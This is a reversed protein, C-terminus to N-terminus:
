IAKPNQDLSPPGAVQAWILVEVLHFLTNPRTMNTDSSVRFIYGFKASWSFWPGVNLLSIRDHMRMWKTSSSAICATEESCFPQAAGGRLQCPPIYLMYSMFIYIHSIRDFYTYVVKTSPLKSTLSGAIHVSSFCLLSSASLLSLNSSLLTSSFSYSSLLHLHM